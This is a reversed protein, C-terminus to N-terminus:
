PLHIFRVPNANGSKDWPTGDANIGRCFASNNQRACDISQSPYIHGSTCRQEDMSFHVGEPTLEAKATGRCIDGHELIRTIAEGKADFLFEMAVPAGTRANMLGTECRWQGKLFALDSTREPIILEPQQSVPEQHSLTAPLTTPNTRCLQAHQKLRETLSALSGRMAANKKRMDAAQEAANNSFLLPANYITFGSLTPLGGFSTVALAALLLLLLLPLLWLWGGGSRDELAIPSPPIETQEPKASPIVASEQVEEHAQKPASPEKRPMAPAIRCLDQPDAGPTGPGFGWCTFVPQGGIAYLCDESPYRLALDLIHGRMSRSPESQMRLEEAYKRLEAAMNVLSARMANQEDEPLSLLPRVQGQVPTYWDISNNENNRVPEAFLLAYRDGLRRNRQLMARIQAYCDSM